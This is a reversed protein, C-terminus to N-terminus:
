HLCNAGLLAKLDGYLSASPSVRLADDIRLVTTHTGGTLHLNVETTGPHQRLVDKLREVLPPVCRSAALSLSLPGSAAQSLDPTDVEMAILRLGDEDSREARVRMTVISDEVLSTAVSAYTQPFVMVEVAGDLDELGAIAWASGKKTTKRQVATLLGAITLVASELSEDTLLAALSRDAMTALAHELGNLPHDSVYLGLMDREHALLVTKDWEGVPIPTREALGAGEEGSEPDGEAGLGAFLDFQGAAEARKIEVASDIVL